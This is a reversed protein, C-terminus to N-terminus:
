ARWALRPRHSTTRPNMAVGFLGVPVRAMDVLDATANHTRNSYKLMM